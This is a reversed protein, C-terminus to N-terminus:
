DITRLSMVFLGGVLAGFLGFFAPALLNQGDQWIAYAMWAMFVFGIASLWRCLRKDVRQTWTGDPKQVRYAATDQDIEKM